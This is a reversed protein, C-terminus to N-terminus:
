NSQLLHESTLSHTLSHSNLAFFTRSYTYLIHMYNYIYIRQIPTVKVSICSMQFSAIRFYSFFLRVCRIAASGSAAFPAAMSYYHVLTDATQKYYPSSLVTSMKSLLVYFVATPQNLRKTPQNTWGDRDTM